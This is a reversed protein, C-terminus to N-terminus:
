GTVVDLTLSATALGSGSVQITLESAPGSRVVALAQGYYPTHRGSVYDKETCPNASGFGLLHGGVVDVALQVDSNAQIVDNEGVLDVHIYVIEGAKIEQDEPMLRITTQGTASILLSRSIEHGAQDLAIAELKGPRYTTRFLTKCAKLKKTDILRDNVLLQVAHADSYVEVTAQNGTCNEWSWSEIANTGRWMSIRPAVGPHNVPRVCLTPKSELGWVTAAYRAEPGINGLIDIVGSGALLWPYDKFFSGGAYSWAGVGAEGLYDWGTWMFDGILYPLEKVMQWNKAIDFPFTETGVIIRNPHKKGDMKYRGSGYNYGALDLMDMAPSNAKDVFGLRGVNNMLKGVTHMMMNFFTSGSVKNPPKGPRRKAQRKEAQRTRAQRKEVQRKEVQRTEAQQPTKESLRNQDDERYIGMGKSAMAGLMLNIGCTVPRSSDLAHLYGTMTGTLERGRPQVTESVENGISYMIVSPHNIDKDVMAQIDRQHWADFDQAYDFRTKPIYWMDFTEDIVYLGVQDCADLMAKSMPHHSSRLANFGAQKMIRVRRQESKAYACAGLIGNDHHVCAGRLLTERGNIFLGQTSWEIMRIGFSEIQEGVLIQGQMLMVKCQYMFPTEDSWLRADPLDFLVQDGQDEAIVRDGDLIQVKVKIDVDDGTHAVDVKIKAPNYSLTTIRVGHLDIHTKHTILLHIPRYIGSGSYWRSNPQKSNDVVIKITNEMGYRLFPDASVTFGTYGYLWGGAEQDNITVQSNRYIGECEFTVCRDQWELPVDFRKEYVYTGGPFFGIAGGGESDPSRREHIMADHPLDVIQADESGLKYFTWGSNFSVKEM